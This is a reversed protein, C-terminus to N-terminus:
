EDEQATSALAELRAILDKDRERFDDLDFDKSLKLSGITEEVTARLTTITADQEDFKKILAQNSLRREDAELRLREVESILWDRDAENFKGWTVPLKIKNKIKELHDLRDTM